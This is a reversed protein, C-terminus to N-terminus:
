RPNNKSLPGIYMLVLCWLGYASAMKGSGVEMNESAYDEVPWPKNKQYWFIQKWNSFVL